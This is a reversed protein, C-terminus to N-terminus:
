NGLIKEIEGSITTESLAKALIFLKILSFHLMTTSSIGYRSIELIPPSKLHEVIGNILSYFFLFICVVSETNM